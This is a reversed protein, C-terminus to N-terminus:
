GSPRMPRGSSSAATTAKRALSSAPKTVPRVQTTSPPTVAQAAGPRVDRTRAGPAQSVGARGRPRRANGCGDRSGCSGRVAARAGRTRVRRVCAQKGPDELPVSGRDAPSPTLTGTERCRERTGTLPSPRGAPARRCWSSTWSAVVCSDGSVSAPVRSGDRRRGRGRGRRRPAPPKSLNPHPPRRINHLSAPAPLAQSRPACRRGAPRDRGQSRPRIRRRPRAAGRVRGRTGAARRRLRSVLGCFAPRAKPAAARRERGSVAAAARAGSTNRCADGANRM